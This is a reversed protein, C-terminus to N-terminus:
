SARDGRLSPAPRGDTTGAALCTSRYAGSVLWTNTRLERLCTARHLRKPSWLAVEMGSIPAAPNSGVVVQVGYLDVSFHVVSCLGHTLWVTSYTILLNCLHSHFEKGAAIRAQQAALV